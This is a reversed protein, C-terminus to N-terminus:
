KNTKNQETQKTKNQETQKTKNQKNQKTRNQKKNTQKNTQKNTRICLLCHKNEPLPFSYVLSPIPTAGPLCFILFIFSAPVLVRNGWIARIALLRCRIGVLAPLKWGCGRLIHSLDLKCSKTNWHQGGNANCSFSPPGSPKKPKLSFRQSSLCSGGLVFFFLCFAQPRHNPSLFQIFISFPTTATAFVRCFKGSMKKVRVCSKCFRIQASSNRWPKGVSMVHGQKFVRHSWAIPEIDICFWARGWPPVCVLGFYPCERKAPLPAWVGGM